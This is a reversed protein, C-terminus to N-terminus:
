PSKSTEAIVAQNKYLLKKVISLSGNLLQPHSVNTLISLASDDRIIWDSFPTKHVFCESFKTM